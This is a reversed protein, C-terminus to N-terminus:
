PLYLLFSSSLFPLQRCVSPINTARVAWHDSSSEYTAAFALTQGDFSMAGTM